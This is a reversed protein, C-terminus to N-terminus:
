EIEIRYAFNELWRNMAYLAIPSAILIAILVLRIFDKSLLATVSRVTAGMVKRIGIEKQRREATFTALGFLGLCSILVAIGASYGSLTAVRQEATYLKRYDEDLFAYEFPLGPVFTKYYDELRALTKNERGAKIKVLFTTSKSPKLGLFYPRLEDYLSEFHFDKVVGIIEKEKGWLRVRKGVPDKLGMAAIATENFIVKSSDSGFDRSFPRGEVMTLGLTEILDYDVYHGAFEIGQGPQQGEWSIGSGGGNNGLMDGNMRSANVVGPIKKLGAIFAEQRNESLGENTFTVINDKNYGLNKTHVLKMQQYIVLISIIFVVSLTFQFVVLGKRTLLESFAIKTKGRLVAMPNFGSLYLAPYSGAILGTLLTIGLAPLILDPTSFLSLDKGTVQNFVPLLIIILILAILLSLFSMLVSESLYQLVLTGRGAGMVKRMSLEKVRRSAKATALNMFNICAIVLLFVAIVSFQKVYEIRGGAQVGNEYRNYLYRDSYRQLFLTGIYKLNELGYTALYKTKIFDRIKPYVQEANVGEKLLVYNSVNNSRWNNFKKSDEVSFDHVFLIDFRTSSNSPITEFVGSVTYPRHDVLSYEKEWQITKGIINETTHFLKLALEESLLVGNRNSLPRQRNGQLLKYSFLKFFNDSVYRESVKFKHEGASVIGMTEAWNGAVVVADEIEPIEHVLTSALVGPTNEMTEISGDGQPINQMVQYLRDDKAHFKDVSLEDAVWLYILLACTLGVSLGVLNISFSGKFRKFSRYILKLNYRLM